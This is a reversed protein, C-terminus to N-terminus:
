PRWVGLVDSEHVGAPCAAAGVWAQTGQLRAPAATRVSRQRSRGPEAGAKAKVNRGPEERTGKASKTMGKARLDEVAVWGHNKALDTTLKHTFDQRRRAQRARLKAIQSITRGLRNSYHGGNHKRAWTIQRAKRRELGLLRRRQGATLTSPMLRPEQEDSVFASCAVGFDVGCGPLRNRPAPKAATALGFSVHWGLADKAVTANRVMGGLPRSLRFRVWGLKPLRVEAWRRSRKRIEVAQGPFPVSVGGSRKRFTPAQAPHEPNWWNDYARDLQRLVQQASQAPLDALWPLDARADTLQRCQEASWITRGRQRWAFRRQELALNWVARCSHAWGTLREAQGPTPYARYRRGTDAYM